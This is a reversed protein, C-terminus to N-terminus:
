RYGGGSVDFRIALQYLHLSLVPSDPLQSSYLFYLFKEFIEPSIDPLEIINNDLKISERILSRLTDSSIAIVSKHADIKVKDQGVLFTIDTFEKDNYMKELLKLSKRELKEKSTNSNNKDLLRGNGSSNNSNNNNMVSVSIGNGNGNSNVSANSNRKSPPKVEKQM